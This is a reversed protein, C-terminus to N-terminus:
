KDKDLETTDQWTRKEAAAASLQQGRTVHHQCVHQSPHGIHM